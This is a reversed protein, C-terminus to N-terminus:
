GRIIILSEIGCYMGLLYDRDAEFRRMQPASGWLNEGQLFVWPSVRVPVARISCSSCSDTMLWKRLSETSWSADASPSGRGRTVIVASGQGVLTESRGSLFDLYARTRRLGEPISHYANDDATALLLDCYESDLVSFLLPSRLLLSFGLREQLVDLLGFGVLTKELIRRSMDADGGKREPMPTVSSTILPITAAATVRIEAALKSSDLLSQMAARSKGGNSVSAGSAGYDDRLKKSPLTSGGAEGNAKRKKRLRRPKEAVDKNVPEVIAETLVVYGGGGTSHEKEAGNGEDFLRDISEIMNGESSAATVLVPSALPVVCGCTAELLPVQDGAKEM